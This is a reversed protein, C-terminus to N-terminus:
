EVYPPLSDSIGFQLPSREIEIAFVVWVLDEDLVFGGAYSQNLIQAGISNQPYFLVFQLWAHILHNTEACLGDMKFLTLDDNRLLGRPPILPNTLDSAKGARFVIVLDVGRSLGEVIKGAFTLAQGRPTAESCRSPVLARWSAPFASKACLRP